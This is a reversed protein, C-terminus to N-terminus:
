RQETGDGGGLTARWQEGIAHSYFVVTNCWNKGWGLVVRSQLCNGLAGCM